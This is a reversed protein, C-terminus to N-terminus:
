MDDGPEGGDDQIEWFPTDEIFEKSDRGIRRKAPFNGLMTWRNDDMRDGLKMGVGRQINWEVARKFGPTNLNRNLMITQQEVEDPEGRVNRPDLWTKLIYSFALMRKPGGHPQTYIWIWFMDLQDAVLQKKRRVYDRVRHVKKTQYHTTYQYYGWPRPQERVVM